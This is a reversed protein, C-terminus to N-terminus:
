PGLVRALRFGFNSAQGDYTSRGRVAARLFWPGGIWSGGRLVNFKCGGGTVASGNTPAGRYSDQFCDETWQWVNGLMDYLGFENPRFSGVPATYVYGDRCQFVQNKDDKNRKLAEATTLDVANAFGCAQDRDDGWYRVTTTGARAAYEWEAETPLRYSKGTKRSLWQVYRQADDYTVCVVPHRDTQDFGPNQWSRKEDYVLAQSNTTYAYCGGAPQYGSDKVFAAFEGRTVAFQGLAFEKAITVAHAPRENDAVIAPVEERTTEAATSGMTFTGAPVKVMLPCDSCDRFTEAATAAATLGMLWLLIAPLIRFRTM